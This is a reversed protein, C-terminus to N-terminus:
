EGYADCLIGYVSSCYALWPNYGFAEEGGAYAADQVGGSLEDFVSADFNEDMYEALEQLAGIVDEPTAEADDNYDLVEMMINEAEEDSTIVDAIEDACPFERPVAYGSYKSVRHIVKWLLPWFGGDFLGNYQVLEAASQAMHSVADDAEAYEGGGDSERLLRARMSKLTKIRENIKRIKKKLILSKRM